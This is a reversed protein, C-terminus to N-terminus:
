DPGWVLGVFGTPATVTPLTVEADDVDGALAAALRPYQSRLVTSGDCVHWGDPVDSADSSIILAGHWPWERRSKEALRQAEDLSRRLREGELSPQRPSRPANM